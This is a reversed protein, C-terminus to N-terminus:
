NGAALAKELARALQDPCSTPKTGCCIGKLRTIAERANMGEVLRAVGQTNGSCGGIFEVSKVIEGDLELQIAVSCTGKTRYVM